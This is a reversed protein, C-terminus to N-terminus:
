HIYTELIKGQSNIKDKIFCTKTHNVLQRYQKRIRNFNNYYFEYNTKNYIKEFRRLKRKM